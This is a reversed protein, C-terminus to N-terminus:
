KKFYIKDDIIVGNDTIADYVTGFPYRSISTIIDFAKKRNIYNRKQVAKTINIFRFFEELFDEDNELHEEITQYGNKPYSNKLETWRAIENKFRQNITLVKKKAM